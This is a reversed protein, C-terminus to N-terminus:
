DGGSAHQAPSPTASPIQTPPAGATTHGASARPTVAKSALYDALTAPKEAAANLGLLRVTRSYSNSWALYTRSDHSTMVSGSEVFARDMVALRLRLQACQEILARQTASPKGGVHATLDRRTDRMLRAEKGRGDLKALAGPRSNPALPHTDATSNSPM